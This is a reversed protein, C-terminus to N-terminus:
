LYSVNLGKRWATQTPRNSPKKPTATNYPLRAVAIQRLRTAKLKTEVYKDAALRNAESWNHGLLILDNRIKDVESPIIGMELDVKAVNMKM